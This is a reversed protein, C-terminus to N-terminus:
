PIYVEEIRKVKGERIYINYPLKNWHLSDDNILKAFDNLSIEKDLIGQDGAEWTKMFILVNKDLKIYEDNKKENGIFYDNPLCEERTKETCHGAMIAADQGEKGTLWVADDFAVEMDDAIQITHIFGLYLGDRFLPFQNKESSSQIGLYYAGAAIVLAIFLILLLKKM